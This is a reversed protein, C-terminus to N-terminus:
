KRPRGVWGTSRKREGGGKRRLLNFKNKSLPFLLLSVDILQGECAGVPSRSEVCAHARVPFQDPSGETRLGASLGSLWM